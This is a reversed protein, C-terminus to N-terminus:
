GLKKTTANYVKVPHVMDFPMGQAKFFQELAAKSPAEWDCFFKHNTFDCYTQKFTFGKPIGPLQAMLNKFQQENVPMTHVAIFKAM